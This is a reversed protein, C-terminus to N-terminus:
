KLVQHAKMGHHDGAQLTIYPTNGTPQQHTPEHIAIQAKGM